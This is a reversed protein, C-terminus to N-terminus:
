RESGSVRLRARRQIDDWSDESNWFLEAQVVTPYSFPPNHEAVANFEVPQRGSNRVTRIHDYAEEGRRMWLEEYFRHLPAAVSRDRKLLDKGAHGLVYAGSQHEWRSWDQRLQCKWVLGSRHGLDLIRKVFADDPRDDVEYYPFGGFKEGCNEWLIELSPDVSSVTELDDVVSTAHLGFVINLKPNERHIRSSVDNVLEVVMEAVSRSGIRTRTQETFSQFYIGDGGLPRWVDRWEAFVKDGLAKLDDTKSHVCDETSWGWAFGWLLELGWAHAEKVVETANVPPHENWLIVRNFRNRAMERFFMRYDDVVHGWSFVSRVPTQPRRVREYSPGDEHDFFEGVYIKKWESADRVRDCMEVLAVDLFDFVAWLVASPTDGALVIKRSSGEQCSRIVYGGPPVATQGLLRRVDPNEDPRGIVVAHRKAVVPGGVRELPLVFYVSNRGERLLYKGMGETLVELARGELGDSSSYVVKWDGGRALATQVFVFGFVCFLVRAVM